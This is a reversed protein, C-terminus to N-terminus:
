SFNKWNDVENFMSRVPDRGNNVYGNLPAVRNNGPAFGNPLHVGGNNLLNTTGKIVGNQLLPQDILVGKAIRSGDTFM